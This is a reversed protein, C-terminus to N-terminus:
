IEAMNQNLKKQKTRLEKFYMLYIWEKVNQM